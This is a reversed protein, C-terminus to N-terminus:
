RVVGAAAVDQLFAEFGTAFAPLDFRSHVVARGAAALMDRAQQNGLLSLLASRLADRDEPEVYVVGDGEPVLEELVPSRSAVVARGMAMAELQARIGSPYTLGRRLPIVVLSAGAYLQFLETYSLRELVELHPATRDVGRLLYPLTVIKLDADLGRTAEVLTPYDRGLDRGVALVYPRGRSAPAVPKYFATDIAYPLVATRPPLVYATQWQERQFRSYFVLGDALRLNLRYFWRRWARKPLTFLADLYVIRTGALRAGVTLMTSLEDKVVVVDYRRLALLTKLDCLNVDFQKLWLRLRGLLGGWRSDAIDVTHGMQRLETLGYTRERPATGAEVARLEPEM